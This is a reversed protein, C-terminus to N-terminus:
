REGQNHRNDKGGMPESRESSRQWEKKFDNYLWLEPKSGDRVRKWIACLVSVLIGTGIIPDM